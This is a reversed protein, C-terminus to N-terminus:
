EYESRELTGFLGHREIGEEPGGDPVVVVIEFEDEDTSLAADPLCGAGGGDRRKEGLLAVLSHEEHTGIRGM